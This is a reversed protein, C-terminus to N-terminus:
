FHLNVVQTTRSVFFSPTCSSSSSFTIVMMEIDGEESRRSFSWGKRGIKSDVQILNLHKLNAYKLKRGWFNKYLFTIM